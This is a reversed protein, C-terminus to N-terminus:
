ESPHIMFNSNTKFISFNYQSLLLSGGRGGYIEKKLLYIEFKNHMLTLSVHVKTVLPIPPNHLLFTSSAFSPLLSPPPPPPPAVPDYFRYVEYQFNCSPRVVRGGQKGDCCSPIDGFAGTLCDNCDQQCLDPTCQVLANLTQFNPAPM